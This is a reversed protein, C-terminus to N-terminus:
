KSSNELVPSAETEIENNNQHKETDKKLSKLLLGFLLRQRQPGPFNQQVWPSDPTKNKIVTSSIHEVHGRTLRQRHIIDGGRM